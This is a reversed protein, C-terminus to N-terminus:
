VAGGTLRRHSQFVEVHEFGAEDNMEVVLAHRRFTPVPKLTFVRTAILAHRRLILIPRM